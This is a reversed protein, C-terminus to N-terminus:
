ELSSRSEHRGMVGRARAPGARLMVRAHRVRDAFTAFLDHELVPSDEFPADGGWRDFDVHTLRIVGGGAAPVVISSSKPIDNDVILNLGVGGTAGAISAAAFNKIWVGPHFLEPQHGTVVLPRESRALAELDFSPSSLGHRELFRRALAVVEQRVAARLYRASRGQFDYHWDLLQRSNAAIQGSIEAPPPDILAGGDVTPARLRRATM